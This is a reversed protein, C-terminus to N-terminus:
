TDFVAVYCGQMARADGDTTQPLKQRHQPEIGRAALPETLAEALERRPEASNAFQVNQEEQNVLQMNRATRMARRQGADARRHGGFAVSRPFPHHAPLGDIIEVFDGLPKCADRLLQLVRLRRRRVPHARPSPGDVRPDRAARRPQAVRDLAGARHVKGIAQVIDADRQLLKPVDLLQAGFDVAFRLRRFQPQQFARLIQEAPHVVPLHQDVTHAVFLRRQRRGVERRPPREIREHDRELVVAPPQV